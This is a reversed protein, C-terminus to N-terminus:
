KANAEGRKMYKNELNIRLTERQGRVTIITTLLGLFIIIDAIFNHWYSTVWLDPILRSLLNFFFYVSNQILVLFSAGFVACAVSGWGGFTFGGIIAAALSRLGWAEAQLPDGSATMLTLCIGAIGTFLGKIMFALFQVKVPSIGAAYANQPNAGVAYIHRGFATRKFYSWILLVIVIAITSAPIFGLILSNYARFLERSVSGQPINMIMVNVGRIAYTLAFGVLLDPLRVVSILAWIVSSAVMAAVIGILGGIAFPVGWEQVTMITVVNVLALQIGISIDMTGSLLLIGQAIVILLFPINSSFLVSLSQPSFFSAPGQLAINLLLAGLFLVFGTFAPTKRFSSFSDKIGTGVRIKVQEKM